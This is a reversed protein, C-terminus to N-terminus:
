GTPRSRTCLLPAVHPARCPYADAAAGRPVHIHAGVLSDTACNIDLREPCFRGGPPRARRRAPRDTERHAAGLATYGRRADPEGRRGVWGPSSAGARERHAVTMRLRGLIIDARMRSAVM